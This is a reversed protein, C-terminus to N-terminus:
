HRANDVVPGLLPITSIWKGIRSRSQEDSKAIDANTPPISDPISGPPVPHDDIAQAAGPSPAISVAPPLSPAASPKVVPTPSPASPAALVPDPSAPRAVAAPAPQPRASDLVPASVSEKHTVLAQRVADLWQADSIDPERRVPEAAVPTAAMVPQKAPAQPRPEVKRVPEKPVAEVKQAKPAPPAVAVPAATMEVALLTKFAATADPDVSGCTKEFTEVDRRVLIRRTAADVNKDLMAVIGSRLGQCTTEPSFNARYFSYGSAIGVPVALLSGFMQIATVFRTLGSAKRAPYTGSNNPRTEDNADVHFPPDRRAVLM